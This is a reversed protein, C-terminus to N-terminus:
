RGTHEPSPTVTPLQPTPPTDPPTSNSMLSSPPVPQPLSATMHTPVSYSSTVLTPAPPVHLHVTLPTATYATRSSAPPPLQASVPFGTPPPYYHPASWPKLHSPHPLAQTYYTPFFTPPQSLPAMFQPLTTVVIHAQSPAVATIPVPHNTASLSIDQTSCYKQELDAALKTEGVTDSRLADVINSWTPHSPYIKLWMKITERLCDSPNSYQEKIADLRNLKMRLMMGIDYWKVCVKNLEEIVVPLDIDSLQQGAFQSNLM